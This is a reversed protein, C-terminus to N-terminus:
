FFGQEVRFQVPSKYGLASALREHNFYTVFRDLTGNLDNTYRLDFDLYLEEKIWGNLAEIIPNDTPTGIRSMSRIITYDAHAMQYARSSYVAGQDTHLVVPTTQENKKGIKQKLIDLCHYYPATNGNRSLGHAIIENNFTDLLLTWEYLVGKNVICTMDSVVLTLPRKANWNGKVINPFRINEAGVKRFHYTRARSRISADKCCKHALNDSFLWGTEQRIATALRHYGWSKHDKSKELLLSTLDFRNQEYRNPKDKRELWKYYGSPNLDMIKLLISVPYKVKLAEAIKYEQRL